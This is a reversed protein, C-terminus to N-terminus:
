CTGARQGEQRLQAVNTSSVFQTGLPLRESISFIFPAPWGSGRHTRTTAAPRPRREALDSGLLTITKLSSAGLATPYVPREIRERSDTAEAM